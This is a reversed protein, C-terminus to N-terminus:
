VWCGGFWCGALMLGAEREAGEEEKGLVSTPVAGAGVLDCVRWTRCSRLMREAVVLGAGEGLSSLAPSEGKVSLGAVGKAVDCGVVGM